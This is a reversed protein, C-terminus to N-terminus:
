KITYNLTKSEGRRLVTVSLNSATRVKTYVELAIAPTSMDYGNIAQITDGNMLGIKAYVSDPRIAYLKFGNPKNDKVSPVIRASRALTTTDGLLKDLLGRDIEFDTDSKRRIGKDLDAAMPDASPDVVPAVEAVAPQVPAAAPPPGTYGELDIYEYVGKNEFVVRKPEISWLKPGAPLVDNVAYKATLMSTNDRIVAHHLM